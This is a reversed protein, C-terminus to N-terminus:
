DFHLRFATVTGDSAINAHLTYVRIQGYFANVADEHCLNFTLNHIRDESGTEDPDLDLDSTDQM